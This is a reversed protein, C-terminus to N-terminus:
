KIGLAMRAKQPAADKQAKADEGIGNLASVVTGANSYDLIDTLGKALPYQDVPLSMGTTLRALAETRGSRMKAIIATRAKSQFYHTNFATDTGTLLSSIAALMSKTGPSRTIPATSTAALSAVATGTDMMASSSNLSNEFDSYRDDALWILEYLIQDRLAKAEALRGAQVASAYATYWSDDNSYKKVLANRHPKLSLVKPRERMAACGMASAVALLIGIQLVVNRM